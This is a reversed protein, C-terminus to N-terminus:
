PADGTARPALLVHTPDPVAAREGTPTLEGTEPDVAFVRIEGARRNAVLLWRGGPHIAFSRPWAIGERQHGRRTLRGTRPDIAFLAISDFDGRNSVYLWRGGPHVHIAASKNEGDFGEPLTSVTQLEDLTGQEGDYSWATVSGLLENVLYAFSGGASFALHRPGAGPATRVVVARAHDLGTDQGVQPYVIVRDTGLDAVLVRRGDPATRIYHPHPAEQRAPDPGSGQYRVVDVLEGPAGHDGVPLLAVSGGGYNAVLLWRGTPHVSVYAPGAGGSPSAGLTTLRGSASDRRYAAVGGEDTERVAYLTRGDPALALFSPNPTATVPLPTTALSGDGPDFRLVHIGNQPDGTSTGVYVFVADSQQAGAPAVPGLLLVSLAILLSRTM